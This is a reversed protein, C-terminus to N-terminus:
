AYYLSIRGINVAAARVRATAEPMDPRHEKVVFVQLRAEDWRNQQRLQEVQHTIELVTTLGSGAQAGDSRSAAELGFTSM